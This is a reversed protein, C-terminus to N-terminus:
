LDKDLVYNAELDLYYNDDIIFQYWFFPISITSLHWLAHSDFTWFIPSFDFIELSMLIDVLLVSLTCRWAYLNGLYFCKYLSWIIWCLSNLAGFFINVNMNYGYDFEVFSLYYVHYLYYCISCFLISYMIIRELVGKRLKLIRIFFCNFQFLVLSFASFYDMKETFEFDRTHFITSWIWTNISCVGFGIWMWKFPAHYSM